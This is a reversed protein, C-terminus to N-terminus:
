REPFEGVNSMKLSDSFVKMCNLNFFRIWKLLWTIMTFRAHTSQSVLQSDRLEQNKARFASSFGEDRTKGRGRVM